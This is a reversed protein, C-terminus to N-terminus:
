VGVAGNRLLDCLEFLAKLNRGTKVKVYQSLVSFIEVFSISEGELDEGEVYHVFLRVASSTMKVVYASHLATSVFGGSELDFVYYKPDDGSKMLGLSVGYGSIRLMDLFYRLFDTIGGKDYCLTMLLRLLRALEEGVPVMEETLKDAIELAAAASFYRVLDDSITVFADNYDFSRLTYFDGNPVLIYEGFSFPVAAQRLRSKPSSVGRARVSVKGLSDTLLTIIRDNEGYEVSRLCVANTKIEEKM